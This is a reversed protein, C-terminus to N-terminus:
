QQSKRTLGPGPISRIGSLLLGVVWHYLGIAILSKGSCYICFYYMLLSSIICSVIQRVQGNNVWVRM